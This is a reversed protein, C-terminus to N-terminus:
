EGSSHTASSRCRPERGLRPVVHGKGLLREAHKECLAVDDIGNTPEQGIGFRALDDFIGLGPAEDRGPELRFCRRLPEGSKRHRGAVVQRVDAAQLLRDRALPHSLVARLVLLGRSSRRIHKDSM